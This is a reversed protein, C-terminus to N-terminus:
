DQRHTQVLYCWQFCLVDFLFVSMRWFCRSHAKKSKACFEFCQFTLLLFDNPLAVIKGALMSAFCAVKSFSWLLNTHPLLLFCGRLVPTSNRNSSKPARNQAQSMEEDQGAFCIKKRMRVVGSAPWFYKSRFPLWYFVNFSHYRSGRAVCLSFCREFSHAAGCAFNKSRGMWNLWNERAKQHNKILETDLQIARRLRRESVCFNKKSLGWLLWLVRWKYAFFSFLETHDSIRCSLIWQLEGGLFPCASDLSISTPSGEIWCQWNKQMYRRYGFDVKWMCIWGESQWRQHRITRSRM